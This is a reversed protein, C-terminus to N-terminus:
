SQRFAAQFVHLVPEALYEFLTHAGTVIMVEATMGPYLKIDPRRALEEDDVSV